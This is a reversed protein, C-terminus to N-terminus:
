LCLITVNDNFSYNVAFLFWKVIKDIVTFKNELLRIVDISIVILQLSNGARLVYLTREYLSHYSQFGCASLNADLYAVDDRELM